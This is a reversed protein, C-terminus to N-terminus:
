MIKCYIIKKCSEAQPWDPTKKSNEKTEAMHQMKTETMRSLEGSQVGGYIFFHQWISIEFDVLCEEVSYGILLKAVHNGILIVSSFRVLISMLLLM